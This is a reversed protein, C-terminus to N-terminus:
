HPMYWPTCTHVKGRAKGSVAAKARRGKSSAPAKAKGKVEPKKPKKPIARIKAKGTQPTTLPAHVLTHM